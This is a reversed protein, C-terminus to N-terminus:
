EREVTSIPSGCRVIVISGISSGAGDFAGGRSSGGRSGWRSRSPSGALCDLQDDRVGDLREHAPAAPPNAVGRVPESEGGHVGRRGPRGAEGELGAAVVDRGVTRGGNGAAAADVGGALWLEQEAVDWRRDPRCRRDDCRRNEAVVRHDGDPEDRDPARHDLALPAPPALVAVRLLQVDGRGHLM